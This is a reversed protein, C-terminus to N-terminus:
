NNLVKRKAKILGKVFFDSVFGRYATIITELSFLIALAVASYSIIMNNEQASIVALYVLGLIVAGALKLELIAVRVDIEDIKSEVESLTDRANEEVEEIEDLKTDVRDMRKDIDKKINDINFLGVSISDMIDDSLSKDEDRREIGIMELIDDSNM